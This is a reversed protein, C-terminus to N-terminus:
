TPSAQEDHPLKVSTRFPVQRLHSVQPEVEPHLQPDCLTGDPLRPTAKRTNEEMRKVRSGQERTKKQGSRGGGAM